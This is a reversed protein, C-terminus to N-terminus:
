DMKITRKPTEVQDPDGVNVCTFAEEGDENSRAVMVRTKKQNSQGVPLVSKEPVSKPRVNQSDTAMVKADAASYHGRADKHQIKNLSHQNEKNPLNLSSQLSPRVAAQTRDPVASGM